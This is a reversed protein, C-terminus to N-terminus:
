HTIAGNLLIYNMMASFFIRRMFEKMGLVSASQRRKLLQILNYVALDMGTCWMNDTLTRKGRYLHRNEM